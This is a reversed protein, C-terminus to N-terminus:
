VHLATCLFAFDIVSVCEENVELYCRTGFPNAVVYLELFGLVYYPSMTIIETFCPGLIAYTGTRSGGVRGWSFTFIGCEKFCFM